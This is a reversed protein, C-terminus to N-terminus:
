GIIKIDVLAHTVFAVCGLNHADILANIKAELDNLHDESPMSDIAGVKIHLFKGQVDYINVDMKGKNDEVSIKKQKEEIDIIINKKPRGRKM